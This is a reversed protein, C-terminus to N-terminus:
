LVKFYDDFSNAVENLYRELTSLNRPDISDFDGRFNLLTSTAKTIKAGMSDIEGLIQAQRAADIKGNKDWRQLMFALLQKNGPVFNGSADQMGNKMQDDTVNIYFASDNKAKAPNGTISDIFRLYNENLDTANRILVANNTDMYYSRIDANASGIVLDKGILSLKTHLSLGSGAATPLYEFYELKPLWSAGAAKWESHHKFLASLQYRAFINIVNLDTTQMSNTLLTIRVKSCDRYDGNMMKSLKHLLGSPMFLYASHLVVRVERNEDASVKCAQELGRYWVAHINKGYKAEAGIRSGAKRKLDSAANKDYTINELYYVESNALDAKTLSDSGRQFPENRFNDRLVKKYNSNYNAMSAKMEKEVKALRVERSKYVPMKPLSTEICQGLDAMQVKGTKADEICSGTAMMMADPNAVFDMPVVEQVRDIGAVMESFNFLKDFSAEIEKTGGKSTQGYFDTDMFIYKGKTGLRYKMHYSDEINRGGLQFENGDIAVLKHHTYDTLHDWEASHSINGDNSDSSMIPFHGTLNNLVPNLTEGNSSLASSIQLKAFINGSEAKKLLKFFDFIVAKDGESTEKKMAELKAPEIGAGYGVAIKLATASKGYLGALFMKSFPTLEKNGAMLPSKFKACYKPDLEAAGKAAADDPCPLTIYKADSIIQAGPFNYFRIQLNGRGQNEMMQFLDMKSYNTIFDVIMSVKVGSKAKEILANTMLSSSDDDSYIYYIMRIEKTARKVMELKSDFAADNDNILRANKLDLRSSSALKSLTDSDLDRPKAMSAFNQAYAEQNKRFFEVIGNSAVGRDPGKTSSVCATIALATMGVAILLKKNM